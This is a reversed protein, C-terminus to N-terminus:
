LRYAKLLQKKFEERFHERRDIEHFKLVEDSRVVNPNRLWEQDGRTKMYEMQWWRVTKEVLDGLQGQLVMEWFSQWGLAWPSPQVRRLPVPKYLYANPQYKTIWDNARWFKSATKARNYIPAVLTVWNYLYPDDEHWIGKDKYLKKLDLHQDNLFFSLCIKNAVRRHRWQGTLAILFTVILRVLWIRGSKAVVVVDIDSDPSPTDIPFMNCLAVMKLFPVGGLISILRRAKRWRFQAQNHRALRSDYLEERGRLMYLGKKKTIKRRLTERREVAELIEGLSFSEGAIEGAPEQLFRWIEVLTLPYNFMDYFALASIIGRELKDGPKVQFSM